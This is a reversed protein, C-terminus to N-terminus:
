KEEEFCEVFIDGNNIAGFEDGDGFPCFLVM